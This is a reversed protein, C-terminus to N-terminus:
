FDKKSPKYFSAGHSATKIVDKVKGLEGKKIPKAPKFGAKFDSVDGGEAHFRRPVLGGRSYNGMHQMGGADFAKKNEASYDKRVMHKKAEKLKSAMVDNKAAVPAARGGLYKDQRPNISAMHKAGYPNSMVKSDPTHMVKSGPTHPRTYLVPEVDGGEAVNRRPSVFDKFIEGTSKRGARGGSAHMGRAAAGPRDGKYNPDNYDIKPASSKLKPTRGLFERTLGGKPTKGILGDKPTKGILGGEAHMGRARSMAVGGGSLMDHEAAYNRSASSPRVKSAKSSKTNPKLGMVAQGGEAFHFFDRIKSGADELGAKTKRGLDEASSRIKEGQEEAGSKIKNGFDEAGSKAKGYTDEAGSRAKSYLEGAKDKIADGGEAHRRRAVRGGKADLPRLDQDYHKRTRHFERAEPSLCGKNGGLM